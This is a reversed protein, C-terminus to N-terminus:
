LRYLSAERWHRPLDLHLHPAISCRNPLFFSQIYKDSSQCWCIIRKLMAVFSQTVYFISSNQILHGITINGLPVSPLANLYIAQEHDCAEAATYILDKSRHIKSPKSQYNGVNRTM